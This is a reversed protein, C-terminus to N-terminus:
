APRVRGSIADAVAVKRNRWNKRVTGSSSISAARMSPAPGTRKKRSTSSGKDLVLMAARNTIWNM